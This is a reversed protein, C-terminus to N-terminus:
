YKTKRIISEVIKKSTYKKNSKIPQGFVDIEEQSIFYKHNVIIGNKDKIEVISLNNDNEIETDAVDISIIWCFYATLIILVILYFVWM